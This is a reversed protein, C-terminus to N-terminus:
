GRPSADRRGVAVAPVGAAITAPPLDGRVVANAGIVAGDGITVGPAVVVNAGLWVDDGIAVPMAECAQEDLRRDPAIGHHHDVIFCGPAILTHSGIDVRSLVDVEVGHGLFTQEGVSLRADDSVPKLYVGSELTVRPDLQVCWPRAIRCGPGITVKAGVRAGRLVWGLARVRGVAVAVVARFQEMAKHFGAGSM